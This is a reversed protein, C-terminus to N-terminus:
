DVNDPEWEMDVEVGEFACVVCASGGPPPNMAPWACPRCLGQCRRCVSHGPQDKPRTATAPKAYPRRTM